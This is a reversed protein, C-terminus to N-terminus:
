DDFQGHQSPTILSDDFEGHQAPTNESRKDFEGHQSPSKSPGSDKAIDFAPTENPLTAALLAQSLAAATIFLTTPSRM